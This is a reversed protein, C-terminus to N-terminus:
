LKITDLNTKFNIYDQTSEISKPTNTIIKHVNKAEPSKVWDDGLLETLRSDKFQLVAYYYAQIVQIKYLKESATPVLHHFKNWVSKANENANNSPAKHEEGLLYENCMVFFPRQENPELKPMEKVFTSQLTLLYQVGKLKLELYVANFEDIPKRKSFLGM